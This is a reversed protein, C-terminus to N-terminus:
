SLLAKTDQEPHHQRLSNRENSHIPLRVQPRKSRETQQM